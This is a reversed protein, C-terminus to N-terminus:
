RWAQETRSRNRSAREMKHVFAPFDLGCQAKIEAARRRLQRWGPEFTRDKFAFLVHNHGDEVRVLVTQGLFVENSAELLEEYRSIDGALNMVLLGAPALSAHVNPLFETRTLSGALGHDDFADALLVDITGITRAVFAAADDRIVRFREDDEPIAFHRRLAIVHPNIEIVDIQAMPLSRYCFKALSGGGLGLMVIRGPCADFLLFGMMKQTYRLDLADPEDIRMASQVYTIGLHLCRLQGDEIIFPKGYTGMLLSECLSSIPTDLPELVRLRSSGGLLSMPFSLLLPPSIPDSKM